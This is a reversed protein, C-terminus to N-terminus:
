KDIKRLNSGPVHADNHFGQRQNRERAIQEENTLVLKKKIKKFKPLTSILKRKSKKYKAKNKTEDSNTNQKNNCHHCLM